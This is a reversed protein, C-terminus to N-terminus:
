GYSARRQNTQRADFAALAEAKMRKAAEDLQRQLDERSGTTINIQPAVTLGAMAPVVLPSQLGTGPTQRAGGGPDFLEKWNGIVGERGREKQDKLEYQLKIIQQDVADRNKDALEAAGALAPNNTLKGVVSMATRFAPDRFAMLFQLKLEKWHAIANVIAVGLAVVAVIILGIPNAFM